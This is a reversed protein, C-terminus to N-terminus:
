DILKLNIIKRFNAFVECNWQQAIKSDHVLWDNVNNHYSLLKDDIVIKGIEYRGLKISDIPVHPQLDKPLTDYWEEFKKANSFDSDGNGLFIWSEVAFREQQKVQNRRIVDLDNHRAVERWDKGLTNYGLYLGGWTFRSTLFLRDKELIPSHIGQPYYDFLVAMSNTKNKQNELLLEVEHIHENLLLFNDHVLPDPNREGYIEYEEHLNNLTNQDEINIDFSTLERDYVKNIKSVIEDLQNKIFEIKDDSANNFVSHIFSDSNAQNQKLLNQWRKSLSTEYLWFFLDYPEQNNDLFTVRLTTM